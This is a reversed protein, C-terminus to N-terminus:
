LVASEVPKPRRRRATVAAAALLATGLLALAAPAPTAAAIQPALYSRRM